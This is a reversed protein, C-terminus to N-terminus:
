VVPAMAVTPPASPKCACRQQHPLTQAGRPRLRGGGNEQANGPSRGHGTSRLSAGNMAEHRACTSAKAAFLVLVKVARRRAERSAVLCAPLWGTSFPLPAM